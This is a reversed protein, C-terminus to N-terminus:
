YVRTVKDRKEERFELELERLQKIYKAWQSDYADNSFKGITKAAASRKADLSAESILEPQSIYFKEFVQALTPYNVTTEGQKFTLYGDSSTTGDFDPDTESKFFFGCDNYWNSVSNDTTVIDLLPGASAHVVPVVGNALYEVVGIGFHENWMANLGFKVESLKQLITQYPCDVIFEVYHDLELEAVTAKLDELTKTDDPTRCSGLFIIKPLSALTVKEAKATKLFKSFQQLILDHRKEPRFQAIYIYSNSRSTTKELNSLDNNVCPPYLISGTGTTNFSWVDKLHNFTWTGNALIIDVKSGLYNYLYYLISWYVLKVLQKLDSFSPKVQKISSWSFDRFKLKTFMDPQLIPYHVYALIPLKLVKAVPYYSGPLGITDIWVDPSLEFMAECALLFSGLLQGILTFHRWYSGDILKGFRRLYIFTIRKSDLNDINFKKEVNALIKLPEEMNVTYVVVLNQDSEDLTAKVSEWLVKEGGGGNNCYPHFFGFIIRRRTDEVGRYSMRDVFAENYDNPNIKIKNSVFNTYFSPQSSALILRRRYSSRKVGIKLYIPKPYDIVKQIKEKWDYSPVIFFRPGSTDVVKQILYFVGAIVFLFFLM